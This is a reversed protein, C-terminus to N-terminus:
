FLDAKMLVMEISKEKSIELLSYEYITKSHKRWQRYTADKAPSCEGVQNGTMIDEAESENDSQPPTINGSTDREQMIPPVLFLQHFHIYKRGKRRGQGSTVKNQLQLEKRFNDLINKWKCQIENGPLLILYQLSIISRKNGPVKCSAVDEM